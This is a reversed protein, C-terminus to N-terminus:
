PLPGRWRWLLISLGAIPQPSSVTPPVPFAHLARCRCSRLIGPWLSDFGFEEIQAVVAIDVPHQTPFLMVGRHM